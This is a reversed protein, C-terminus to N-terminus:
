CSLRATGILKKVSAILLPATTPGRHRAVSLRSKLYRATPLATTHQATFIERPTSFWRRVLAQFEGGFLRLQSTEAWVGQSNQTMRLVTGDGCYSLEACENGGRYGYGGSMTAGYLNGDPGVTIGASSYAGDGIAPNFVWLTALNWSGGAAPLLEYVSGYEDSGEYTTGYLNGSNDM